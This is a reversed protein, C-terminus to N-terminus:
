IRKIITQIHLQVEVLGRPIPKESAWDDVWEVIKTDSTTQVTLRYNFYDAVGPKVVYLRDLTFFDAKDVLSMLDKFEAETLVVNGEGFFNSIYSASGDSKIVLEENIGAFGGIRQWTLKTVEVKPTGVQFLYFGSVAVFVVIVVIVMKLGLNM